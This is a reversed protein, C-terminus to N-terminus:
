LFTQLQKLDTIVLDPLEQVENLNGINIGVTYVGCKKAPIIDSSISDGIMINKIPNTKALARKIARMDPKAYWNDWAYIREFYDFIGHEKLNDGQEKYFGNTFICLEYGKAKLYELVEKANPALETLYISKNNIAKNLEQPTVGYNEQPNMAMELLHYFLDYTMKKNAYHEKGYAIAFLNNLRKVFDPIKEDTLNLLRAIVEGETEKDHILLTGDYDFLIRNFRTNM